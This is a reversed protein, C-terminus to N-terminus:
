ASFPGTFGLQQMQEDWDLPIGAKLIRRITLDSPQTGNLIAAQIAPSLFVLNVQSRIRSSSRGESTAIDTISNGAKILDVWRHARALGTILTRDPQPVPDGAIIKGEVGRRKLQFSKKVGVHHLHAV